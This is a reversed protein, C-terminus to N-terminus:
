QLTVQVAATLAQFASFIQSTIRESEKYDQVVGQALMTTVFIVLGIFSTFVSPDVWGAVGGGYWVALRFAVLASVFPLTWILLRWRRVLYQLSYHSIPREAVFTEKDGDVNEQESILFENEFDVHMKKDVIIRQIEQSASRSRHKPLTRSAPDSPDFTPNLWRNSVQRLLEHASSSKHLSQSSLSKSLSSSKDRDPIEVDCESQDFLRSGFGITLISFDISSNYFAEQLSFTKPQPKKRDKLCQFNHKDTYEFPDEISRILLCLYIFLFPISTTYAAASYWLDSTPWNAISMLILVILVMSVVMSYAAPIYRTKQIVKMRATAQRVTELPKLLCPIADFTEARIFGALLEKEAERLVASAYYFSKDAPTDGLANTDAISVAALTIVMVDALLGDVDLLKPHQSEMEQGDVSAKKRGEGNEKDDKTKKNGQKDSQMNSAIYIAAELGLLASVLDSPMREADKYDQILGQLLLATVFVTLSIFTTFVGPNLWGGVGGGYWVALRLCVMVVVFPLALLAHIWRHILPVARVNFDWTFMPGSKHSCAPDLQKCTDVIMKFQHSMQQCNIPKRASEKYMVKQLTEGFEVLLVGMNISGGYRLEDLVKMKPARSDFYCVLSYDESYHFPDELARIMFGLFAHLFTIIVTFAMATGMESELSWLTTVMLTMVVLIIVNLLTYCGTIYDTRKIVYMRMIAKRISDLPKGLKKTKAKLDNQFIKYLNVESTCIMSLVETLKTTTHKRRQNARTDTNNEIKNEQEGSVIAIVAFLLIQINMYPNQNIADEIDKERSCWNMKLDSENKGSELLAIKVVGLLEDFSAHLQCFLNESEKYDQVVGQLLVAAVFVALVILTQFVDQPVWGDTDGGFWVAFRFGVMAGVFPVTFLALRWRRLSLM